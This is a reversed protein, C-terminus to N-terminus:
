VALKYVIQHSSKIPHMVIGLWPVWIFYESWNLKEGKVKKNNVLCSWDQLGAAPCFWGCVARGFVLAFVFLFAFYIFSGVVIGQSAGYIITYPSLFKFLVPFLLFIILTIARRVRQRTTLPLIIHM